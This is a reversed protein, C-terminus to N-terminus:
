DHNSAFIFPAQGWVTQEKGSCSSTAEGTILINGALVFCFLWMSTDCRLVDDVRSCLRRGAFRMVADSRRGVMGGVTLARTSM